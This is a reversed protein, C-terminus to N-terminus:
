CLHTREEGKKKDMRRGGRQAPVCRATKQGHSLGGRRVGWARGPLWQQRALRAGGGAYSGAGALAGALVEAARAPRPRGLEGTSPAAQPACGAHGAAHLWRPEGACDPETWARDQQLSSTRGHLVTRLSTLFERHCMSGHNRARSHRTRPAHAANGQTTGAM